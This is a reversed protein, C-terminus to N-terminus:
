GNGSPWRGPQEDPQFRKIIQGYNVCSGFVAAIAPPYSALAPL